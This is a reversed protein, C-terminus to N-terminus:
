KNDIRHKLYARARLYQTKSTNESIQLQHAIEQHSYGEIAFMNFVMRYGPPMSAILSLLETAHLNSLVEEKVEVKYSVDDFSYNFAHKQGKRLQDLCTNVVIRRIWGELPGEQKFAELKNFVKVMAMQLADESEEKEKMYRYCVALMKPAFKDFLAKQARSKGKLCEQVLLVDDM